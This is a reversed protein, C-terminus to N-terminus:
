LCSIFPGGQAGKVAAPGGGTLRDSGGQGRGEAEGSGQAGPGGGGAGPACSSANEHKVHESLSHQRNLPEKVM